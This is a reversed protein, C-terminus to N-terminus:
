ADSKGTNPADAWAAIANEIGEFPVVENDVDLLHPAQGGGELDEVAKDTEAKIAKAAATEAKQRGEIAEVLDEQGQIFTDLMHLIEWKGARVVVDVPGRLEVVDKLRPHRVYEVDDGVALVIFSDANEIIKRGEARHVREERGYEYPPVVAGEERAEVAELRRRTEHLDKTAQVLVDFEVEEKVARAAAAKAQRKAKARKVARKAAAEKAAAKAAGQLVREKPAKKKPAAKKKPGRKKPAKEKPEEKKPSRPVLPGGEIIKEEM